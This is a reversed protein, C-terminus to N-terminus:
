LRPAISSVHQQVPYLGILGDLEAPASPLTPTRAYGRFRSTLETFARDTDPPRITILEAPDPDHGNSMVRVDRAEAAKEVLSRVVRGNGLDDVIRRRAVEEFMRWLAPRADADLVDGRREVCSEAIQLLEAPTYSPFKVRTAFRSALGPNSALFKEM